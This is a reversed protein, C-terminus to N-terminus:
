RKQNLQLKYMLRARSRAVDIAEAQSFGLLKMLLGVIPEAENSQVPLHPLLQSTILKLYELNFAGTEEELARHNQKLVDIQQRQIEIVQDKDHLLEEVDRLTDAGYQLNLTRLQARLEKETQQSQFLSRELRKLHLQLARQEEFGEWRVKAPTPVSSRAPPVSM